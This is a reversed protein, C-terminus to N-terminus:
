SATRKGSAPATANSAVKGSSREAELASLGGRNPLRRPNDAPARPVGPRARRVRRVEQNEPARSPGARCVTACAVTKYLKVERACGFVADKFDVSPDGEM